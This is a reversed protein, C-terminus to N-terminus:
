TGRTQSAKKLREEALGYVVVSTPEELRFGVALLHSVSSEPVISLLEQFGLLGAAVRFQQALVRM